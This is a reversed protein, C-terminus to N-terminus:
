IISLELIISEFDLINVDEAHMIRSCDPAPILVPYHILVLDDLGIALAPIADPDEEQSPRGDDGPIHM